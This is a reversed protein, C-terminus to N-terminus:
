LCIYKFKFFATKWSGKRLFRSSFLSWLILFVLSANIYPRINATHMYQLALQFNFPSHPLTPFHLITQLSNPFLISPDYAFYKFRQKWNNYQHHYYQYDESVRHTIHFAFSYNHTVRIRDHVTDKLVMIRLKLSLLYLCSLKLFTYIHTPHAPCTNTAWISFYALHKVRELLKKLVISLYGGKKLSPFFPFFYFHVTNSFYLIFDIFYPNSWYFWNLLSSSFRTLLFM